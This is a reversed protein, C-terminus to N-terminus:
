SIKKLEDLDKELKKRAEKEENLEKELHNIYTKSSLRSM